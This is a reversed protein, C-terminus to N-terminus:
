AGCIAERQDTCRFILGLCMLSFELRCYLLSCSSSEGSPIAFPVLHDDNGLEALAVEVSSSEVAGGVAFISVLLVVQMAVVVSVRASAAAAATTGSCGM